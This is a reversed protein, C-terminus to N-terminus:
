FLLPLWVPHDASPGEAQEPLSRSPSAVRPVPEPKIAM